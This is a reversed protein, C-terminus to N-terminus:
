EDAHILRPLSFFYSFPIMMMMMSRYPTVLFGPFAAACPGKPGVLGKKRLPCLGPQTHERVRRTYHTFSLRARRTLLTLCCAAPVTLGQDQHSGQSGKEINTILALKPAEEGAMPWAAPGLVAATPCIPSKEDDMMAPTYM